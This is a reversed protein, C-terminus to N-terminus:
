PVHKWTKRRVVDSIITQHVSFRDAIAQQTMQPYLSRIVRVNAETLRALSIDEGRTARGKRAKDAQNDADTGVFLHAPNCCPRNDCTHCIKLGKPISGHIREYSVRHAQVLRKHDDTIIGYGNHHITGTWPWCADPKGPKYSDLFRDAFPRARVANACARSCLWNCPRKVPRLRCHACLKMHVM